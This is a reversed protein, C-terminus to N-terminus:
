RRQGPSCSVISTNASKRRLTLRSLITNRLRLRGLGAFTGTPGVATISSSMPNKLDAQPLRASRAAVNQQGAAGLMSAYRQEFFSQDGSPSGLCERSRPLCSPGLVRPRRRRVLAKRDARQLRTRRSSRSLAPRQSRGGAGADDSAPRSTSDHDDRKRNATPGFGARLPVPVTAQLQASSNRPLARTHGSM